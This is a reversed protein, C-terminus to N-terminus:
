IAKVFADTILLEDAFTYNNGDKTSNQDRDSSEDKSKVGSLCNSVDNMKKIEKTKRLVDTLRDICAETSNHFYDRGIGNVKHVNM